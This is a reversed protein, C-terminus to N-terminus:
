RGPPPAVLDIEAALSALAQTLERGLAVVLGETEELARATRRLEDDFRGTLRQSAEVDRAWGVLDETLQGTTKQTVALASETDQIASELRANAKALSRLRGQLSDRELALGGAVVAAGDATAVQGGHLLTAYDLLPRHAVIREIRARVPGEAVDGDAAAFSLARALDLEVLEGSNFDQAPTDAVVAVSFPETFRVLAGYANEPLGGAKVQEIVAAWDDQPVETHAVPLEESITVPAHDEALVAADYADPPGTLAVKLVHRGPREYSAEKVVFQGLYRGGDELAADDFVYIVAGPRLPPRDPANGDAALSIEGLADANRPPRFEADPWTRGRWATAVDYAQRLRDRSATLDDLSGGDAAPGDVARALRTQYDGIRSAWARERQALRSSLYLFGCATLLVLIAAAVTGWSWRSHGVGLSVLGGLLVLGILILVLYEM